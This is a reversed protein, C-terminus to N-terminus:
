PLEEPKSVRVLHCPLGYLSPDRINEDTEEDFVTGVVIEFDLNQPVKTVIFQENAARPDEVLNYVMQLDSIERTEGQECDNDFIITCDKDLLKPFGPHNDVNIIVKESEIIAIGSYGIKTPALTVRKEKIMLHENQTYEYVSVKANEISMLVANEDWADKMRVGNKHSYDATLDLFDNYNEGIEFTSDANETTIRIRQNIEALPIGPDNDSEKYRVQHCEGFPFLVKWLGDNKHYSIAIGKIIINISAM